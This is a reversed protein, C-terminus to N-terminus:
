IKIPEVMLKGASNKESHCVGIIKGLIEVENEEFLLPEADNTELCVIGFDTDYFGVIVEDTSKEAIAVLDGRKVAVAAAIALSDKKLGFKELNRNQIRIAQIDDFHSLESPLVLELNETEDENGASKEEIVPANKLQLVAEFDRILNKATEENIYTKAIQVADTLCMTASVFDDLFILCKVKTLMTEVLYAKNESKSLIKIGKEVTQLAEKYKLETFFVQAKTDLSFGERTRDKIQKFTKTSYDVMQHAKAFNGQLKYIQALNNEITGLYIKHRAKSYYFRASELCKLAETHNKLENFAIGLANYFDGNLCDDGHSLFTKELNQLHVIIESYKNEAIFILCKTIHSYLVAYDTEPIQHCVLEEIWTKAENLEGTRWYALALYNECEAIKEEEYLELFRQRAEILLDRSKTQANPIQKNHGYFGILSGCRLLMEAAVKAELGSVDPFKSIDNWIEKVEMLSEYYKGCRELKFLREALVAPQTALQTHLTKM